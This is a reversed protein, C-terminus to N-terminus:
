NFKAQGPSGNAFGPGTGGTLLVPPFGNNTVVVYIGSNLTDSVALLGDGRMSMGSPAFAFNDVVTSYSGSYPQPIRIITGGSSNTFSVYINTSGDNVVALATAPASSFASLSIDFLLNLNPFSLTVNDFKFLSTTTLVYLDNASDVAVGIVNSFPHQNSGSAYEHTQSSSRNGALTVEEVDGNNFDAVWLDGQSDLATACPLNFEATTDPTETTFDLAPVANRDSAAM